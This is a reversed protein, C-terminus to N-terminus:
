AVLLPLLAIHRYQDQDLVPALKKGVRHHIQRVNAPTLDFIAAVTHAPSRDHLRQQIRYELFVDADRESAVSRLAEKVRGVVPYEEILADFDDPGLDVGSGAASVESELGDVDSVTRHGVAVAVVNRIGREAWVWPLAGGDPSWGGANDLLFFAADHVLGDVETPDNLIDVRGMDGVMRRVTGALQGGFHEILTFVFARDGAAMATMCRELLARQEPEM